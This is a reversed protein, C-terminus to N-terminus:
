FIQPVYKMGEVYRMCLRGRTLLKNNLYLLTPYSHPMLIRLESGLCLDTTFDTIPVGNESILNHPEADYQNKRNNSRGRKQTLKTIKAYSLFKDVLGM